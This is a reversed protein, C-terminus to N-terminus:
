HSLFTEDVPKEGTIETLKTLKTNNKFASIEKQIVRLFSFHM